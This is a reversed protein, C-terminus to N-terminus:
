EDPKVAPFSRVTNKTHAYGELEVTHMHEWNLTDAADALDAPDVFARAAPEGDIDKFLLVHIKM